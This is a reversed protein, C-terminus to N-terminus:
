SLLFRIILITILFAGRGELDGWNPLLLFQEINRRRGEGEYFISGFIFNLIHGGRGKL